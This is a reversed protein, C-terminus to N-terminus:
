RWHFKAFMKLRIIDSDSKSQRLDNYLLDRRSVFEEVNTTIVEKRGSPRNGGTMKACKLEEKVWRMVELKCDMGTLLQCKARFLVYGFSLKYCSPM